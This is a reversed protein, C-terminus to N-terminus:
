DARRKNRKKVDEILRIANGYFVDDIEDRSLGTRESALRFAAIIEYIFLTLKAAEAASAERMNKDGSVNGYLGKPVINVYNGNECVRKMRMQTIPLDTGFLIRKTGVAKILQEFVEANTNASIDFMMKETEALVEFANGVDEPCYARGVHAIILRVNPYDREIELMQELNVPDRLRQDRPLHLMVIWSKENLVELQHHPLFDFITIEKVPISDSAFNLYVKTGLFNNKEISDKFKETDWDPRTVALAPFDYKYACQAVYSNTADLSKKDMIQSFLLPILTKDPFCQNYCGMLHEISNDEAVKSPWSVSKLNKNSPPSVMGKLWVHTHIDVIKDPLFDKLHKLYFEEDFKEVHFANGPM